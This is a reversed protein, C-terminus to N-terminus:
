TAATVPHRDDADVLRGFLHEITPRLIEDEFDDRPTALQGLILGSIMSFVIHAETEPEDSGASRLGIEALRLFAERWQEVDKRLAPRRAAELLLEFLALQEGPQELDAAITRALGDAWQEPSAQLPALESVLREIREAEERAALMLSQELLEEKSDFYYTTAALPVGAAEAVSRHTVVDLGRDGILALTARLIAERRDEGKQYRRAV